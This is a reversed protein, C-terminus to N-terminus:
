VWTGDGAPPESSSGRAPVGSGGLETDEPRSAWKPREGMSECTFGEATPRIGMPQGDVHTGLCRSLQTAARQDSSGPAVANVVGPTAIGDGPRSSATPM